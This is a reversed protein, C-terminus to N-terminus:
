EKLLRYVGKGEESTVEVFYLGASLGSIDISTENSAATNSIVEQGVTNRILLSEIQSGSTITVRERAPNPFLRVKAKSNSEVSLECNEIFIVGPPVENFNQQAFVVDDVCIFELNDSFTASFAPNLGFFGTGVSIEVSCTGAGSFFLENSGNKVNIFELADSDAFFHCLSSNASLDLETILNERVRLGVLNPFISFDFETFLNNRMDIYELSTNNSLDLESLGLGRLAIMKLDPNNTVDLSSVNTFSIFLLELLPNNSVDVTNINTELCNLFRLELNNTVDVSTVPSNNLNLYQLNLNASVDVSSFDTVMADFHELNPLGSLDITSIPNALMEIRKLNTNAGLVLSVIDNNGCNVKELSSNGSLDLQTIQNGGCQLETVNIFAGIGTMDSINEANVFIPDTFNVAEAVQIQGDGNTDVGLDILASKFNPDPISVNQSILVPGALFALIFLIKKM